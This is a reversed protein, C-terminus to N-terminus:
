RLDGLHAKAENEMCCRCRSTFDPDVQLLGQTHYSM